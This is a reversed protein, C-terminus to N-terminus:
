DSIDNNKRAERLFRTNACCVRRLCRATAHINGGLVLVTEKKPHSQFLMPGWFTYYAQENAFTFFEFQRM